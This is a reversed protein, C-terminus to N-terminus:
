QCDSEDIPTCTHPKPHCLLTHVYNKEGKFCHLIIVQLPFFSVIYISGSSMTIFQTLQAPILDQSVPKKLKRLKRM